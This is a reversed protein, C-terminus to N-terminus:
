QVVCGLLSFKQIKDRKAMNIKFFEMFMPADTPAAVSRSM